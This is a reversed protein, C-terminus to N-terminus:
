DTVEVPYEYAGTSLDPPGDFNLTPPPSATKWELTQGGWPNAPAPAGKFLSYVLNAFM